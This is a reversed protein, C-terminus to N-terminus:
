SYEGSPLTAMGTMFGYPVDVFMKRQPAQGDYGPVDVAGEVPDRDKDLLERLRLVVMSPRGESVPMGDWHVVPALRSSSGM